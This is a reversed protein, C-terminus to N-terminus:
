PMRALWQQVEKKSLKTKRNVVLFDGVIEVNPKKSAALAFSKRFEYAFKRIEDPSGGERLAFLIADEDLKSLEELSKLVIAGKGTVTEVKGDKVFGALAMQKELSNPLRMIGRKMNGSCFALQPILNGRGVMELSELDADTYLAYKERFAKKGEQGYLDIAAVYATCFRVLGKITVAYGKGAEALLSVLTPKDTSAANNKKKTAMVTDKQNQITCM